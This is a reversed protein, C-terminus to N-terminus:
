TQDEDDDVRPPPLYALGVNKRLLADLENSLKILASAGGISPRRVGTGGPPPCPWRRYKPLLIGLLDAVEDCARNWADHDEVWEPAVWWAPPPLPGTASYGM